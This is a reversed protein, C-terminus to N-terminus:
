NLTQTETGLVNDPDILSSFTWTEGNDESTFKALVKGGLYDGESGQNVILTGQDGNFTPIEAVTFIGKYEDPIPIEVEHWNMGGDITRYLLPKPPDGGYNVSGFSIFGMDQNIFAGDTVLRDTEQVGGVIDWSQGNDATKLVLNGEFSMTRDNTVILYGDKASTFGLLRMRVRTLQDSILVENWSKGQDESLLLYLGDEEALVFATKEPSIIYSNKILDQQSGSYDGGFLREIMVPVVEWHDGANYTIRLTNNIIEYRYNEDVQQIDREPQDTEVPPLGIFRDMSEEVSILTYKQEADKQISMKWVIGDIIGDQKVEGWSANHSDELLQIQFVVAVVFEEDDGEIFHFRDYFAAEIKRDEKLQDMLDFWLRYAYNEPKTDHDAAKITLPLFQLYEKEKVVKTEGMMETQANKLIFFIIIAALVFLFSFFLILRQSSKKM